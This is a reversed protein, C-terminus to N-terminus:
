RAEVRLAVGADGVRQLVRLEAVCGDDREGEGDTDAAILGLGSTEDQVRLRGVKRSFTRPPQLVDLLPKVAGYKGDVDLLRRKPRTMEIRVACRPLPPDPPPASLAARVQLYLDDRFRKYDWSKMRIIENAGPLVLAPIEATWLRPADPDDSPSDAPM